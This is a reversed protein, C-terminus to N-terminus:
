EVDPPRVAACHLSRLMPLLRHEPELAELQTLCDTHQAAQRCLWCAALGMSFGNIASGTVGLTPCLGLMLVFVPNEKLIGATLIQGYKKM